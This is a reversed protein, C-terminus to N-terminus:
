RIIKELESNEIEASSNFTKILAQVILEEALTVRPGLRIKMKKLSNSNIDFFLEQPNNEYNKYDVRPRSIIRDSKEHFEKELYFINIKYRWESEFKWVDNKVQGILPNFTFTNELEEDPLHLNETPNKKKKLYKIKNFGEYGLLYNKGNKDHYAPTKLISNSYEELMPYPLEIRVGKMNKTYMNWFPISEKKQNTWCSVFYFHGMNGFDKTEAESMDNVKDLRSFKIQRSKLILALTEISTYHYFTKKM